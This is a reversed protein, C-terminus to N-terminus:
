LTQLFSYVFKIKVGELGVGGNNKVKKRRKRSGFGLIFFIFIEGKSRFHLEEVFGLFGM